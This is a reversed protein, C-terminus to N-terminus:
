KKELSEVFLNVEAFEFRMQFLVLGEAPDNKASTLFIDLKRVEYVASVDMAKAMHSGSGVWGGRHTVRPHFMQGSAKNM